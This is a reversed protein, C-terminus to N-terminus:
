CFILKFFISINQSFIRINQSFIGNKKKKKSLSLFFLYLLITQVATIMQINLSNSLLIPFKIQM